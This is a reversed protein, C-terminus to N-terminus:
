TDKELLDTVDSYKDDLEEVMKDTNEDDKQNLKSDSELDAKLKSKKKPDLTIKKTSTKKQKKISPSVTGLNKDGKRKEPTKVM